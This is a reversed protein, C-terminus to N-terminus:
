PSCQIASYSQGIYASDSPLNKLSKVTHFLDPAILQDIAGHREKNKYIQWHPMFQPGLSFIWDSVQFTNLVMDLQNQFDAIKEKTQQRRLIRSIFSRHHEKMLVEVIEELTSFSNKLKTCDIIHSSVHWLLKELNNQLSLSIGNGTSIAQIVLAVEVQVRVGLRRWM